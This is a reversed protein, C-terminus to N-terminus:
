AAPRAAALAAKQREVEVARARDEAALQQEIRVLERNKEASAAAREALGHRQASVIVDRQRTLYLIGDFCQLRAMQM